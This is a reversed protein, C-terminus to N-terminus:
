MPPSSVTVLSEPTARIKGDSVDSAKLGQESYYSSNNAGWNFHPLSFAQLQGCLRVAAAGAPHLTLSKTECSLSIPEACGIKKKWSDTCNSPSPHSLRASTTHKYIPKVSGRNEDLASGGTGLTARECVLLLWLKACCELGKCISTATRIQEWGKSIAEVCM